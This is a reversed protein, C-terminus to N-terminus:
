AGRAAVIAEALSPINAALDYVGDDRAARMEAIIRQRRRRKNWSASGPPLPRHHPYSPGGWPPSMFVIDVCADRRLARLVSTADGCICDIRSSVGYVCTNPTFVGTLRDLCNDIAIVFGCTRTFQISNGGAGAYVDLILDCACTKAQNRAIEEPTVSYWSERDMKIGEDFREFLDFRRKWWRLIEPDRMVDEHGKFRFESSFFLAQSTPKSPLSSTEHCSDSDSVDSLTDLPFACMTFLFVVVCRGRREPDRAQSKIM